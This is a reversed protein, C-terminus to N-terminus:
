KKSQKSLWSLLWLMVLAKPTLIVLRFVDITVPAIGKEITWFYVASASYVFMEILFYTIMIKRLMGDKSIYLRWFVLGAIMTITLFMIESLFLNNTM